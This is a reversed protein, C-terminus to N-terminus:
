MELRPVVPIRTEEARNMSVMTLAGALIMRRAGFRDLAVGVPVQLGAYVALQLVSFVSLVAASIGFRRQAELGAVGLSARHFM